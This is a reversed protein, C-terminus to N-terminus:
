RQQPIMSIRQISILVIWGEKEIVVDASEAVEMAWTAVDVMAQIGDGWESGLTEELSM